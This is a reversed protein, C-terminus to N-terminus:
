QEVDEFTHTLAEAISPAFDSAGLLDDPNSRVRGIGYTTGDRLVGVVLRIDDKDHHNAVYTAAEDENEPIADEFQSPLFAREIVLVAGVVTEPWYIMGLREFLDKGDAFEDQEVASLADPASEPVKGRLQPELELLKATEVLAFLRAPQDWGADSVHREVEALAAALKAEQQESM